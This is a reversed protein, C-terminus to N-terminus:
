IGGKHDLISKMDLSGVPHVDGDQEFVEISERWGFQCNHCTSDYYGYNSKTSSFTESNCRPCTGMKPQLIVGKVKGKEFVVTVPKGNADFDVGIVPIKEMEEQTLHFADIAKDVEGKDEEEVFDKQPAVFEVVYPEGGSVDIGAVMPPKEEKVPIPPNGPVVDPVGYFSEDLEGQVEVTIGSKENKTVKINDPLDTKEKPKMDKLLIVQKTAAITGDKFRIIEPESWGENFPAELAGLSKPPVEEIPMTYFKECKICVWRDNVVFQLETGCECKHVAM